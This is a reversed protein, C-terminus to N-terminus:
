FGRNISGWCGYHSNYAVGEQHGFAEYYTSDLDLILTQQNTQRRGLDLLAQNACRM